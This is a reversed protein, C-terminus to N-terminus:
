KSQRWPHDTSPINQSASERKRDLGAGSFNYTYKLYEPTHRCITARSIGLKKTTDKVSLALREPDRCEVVAEEVNKFTKFFETAHPFSSPRNIIVVTDSDDIGLERCIARLTMRSCGILDAIDSYRNRKRLWRIVKAAPMKYEAELYKVILQQYRTM